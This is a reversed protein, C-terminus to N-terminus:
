GYLFFHYSAQQHLYTHKPSITMRKQRDQCNLVQKLCDLCLLDLCFTEEYDCNNLCRGCNICRAICFTCAKCVQSTHPKGRCSDVPCDYVQRLQQCRPCTEIDIAREDDFSLYLQGARFFRPKQAGTQNQIDAGLLLKLEEFHQSTVGFLGGVRLHKIGPSGVSKFFRLNSLTGEISLRLCGAVSLKTLGPNMQLVGKLGVDTIKLCDAISLTHLSGQARNTLRLLDGDTIKDCLPYSLHFNRWLLPDNQVAHRFSKCVREVSLLDRVGLYGLAFFMADPPPGPVDETTYKMPCAKHKNAACWPSWYKEYSFGMVDEISPDDCLGFEMSSSVSLEEYPKTDGLDPHLRTTAGNWVINLEALLKEDDVEEGVDDDDESSSEFGLNKLGFDEIWGTIASVTASIDMGFPDRPLLDVIDDDCVMKEDKGEQNFDHSNGIGCNVDWLTDFDGSNEGRCEEMLFGNGFKIGSFLSEEQNLAM